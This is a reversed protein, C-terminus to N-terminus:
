IEQLSEDALRKTLLKLFERTCKPIYRRSNKYIYTTRTYGKLPKVIASEFLQQNWSLIPVVAVGLGHEVCRLIYFTDNSQIIINPTFHHDTCIQRTLTFLRSDDNVTIFPQDALFSFDLNECNAYPHNRNLAVVLKEDILKTKEYRVLSDDEMSIVLDFDEATAEFAIRTNFVVNPHLKKFESIVSMVIGRHCNVCIHITGHTGDDTISTKAEDMLALAHSIKRYFAAGANNLVISNAHQTFLSVSLERELRHISQSINSAPVNFKKATQSFNETVAADCFYRLQLIEMNADGKFRVIYYFNNHYKIICPNLM